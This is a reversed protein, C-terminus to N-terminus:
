VVLKVVLHVASRTPIDKKAVLSSRIVLMPIINKQNGLHEQHRAEQGGPERRLTHPLGEQGRLHEQPHAEEGGPVRLTCPSTRRPQKQPVAHSHHEESELMSRPTTLSTRPQWNAQGGPRRCLAHHLGEQSVLHEQHRGGINVASNRVDSTRFKVVTNQSKQGQASAASLVSGRM